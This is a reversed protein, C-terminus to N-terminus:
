LFFCPFWFMSCCILHVKAVVNRMVRWLLLHPHTILLVACIWPSSIILSTPFALSSRDLNPYKLTTKPKLHKGDRFLRFCEFAVQKKSFLLFLPPLPSLAARVCACSVLKEFRQADCVGYWRPFAEGAVRAHRSTVGGTLPTYRHPRPRSLRTRAPRPPRFVVAAPHAGNLNLPISLSLPDDVRM